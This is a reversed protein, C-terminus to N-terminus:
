KVKKENGHDKSLKNGFALLQKTPFSFVPLTCVATVGISLIIYIATAIQLNTKDVIFEFLFFAEFIVFFFKHWFYIQLTKTGTKSIIGLDRNPVLAMVATGFVVSIAYCLLRYLCGFSYGEDLVGFGNRGTFMPRLYTYIDENSFFLIVFGIVVFVSVIRLIKNSLFSAVSEPTLMYGLTFIPMFVFIRMLAFMDGLNSDYGAMCGVILSLLLFYKTNHERFIWMLTIFVAMAWMYWTLSDYIELVSFAPSMGLFLRLISMMVRLIIGILIYSIVKGKPFPTEKNMPKLFLGSIFLFVPMHFSYITLYLYNAFWFPEEFETMFNIGHGVVVLLIALFKINDFLFIRQKPLRTQQGTIVTQTM